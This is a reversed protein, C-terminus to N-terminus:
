KLLQQLVQENIKIPYKKKLSALWRKELVGQYDNIVLGRAEDFSRQQNPPYIKLYKMFTATGDQNKTIMSYANEAPAPANTEIIQSLEYRGSDSQVKGDSVEAITKWEKGKRLDELAAIATSEDTANIMIVDASAAWTYKEKNSEYYSKLGTTDTAALSWVNREMIEFLMNGERFEKMQFRFDENYSELNKKYYDMAAISTFKKLLDPYTEHQYVAANGKYERIFKLWDSGKLSGKKFTIVPKNTIPYRGSHDVTIDKMVSDAYRYLEADKVAPQRKLGILNIIERTFKDKASNIRADQLIKQRHDYQLMANSQQAPTETHSLRKLIHVGFASSFPKGIEGDTNLKLVEAEFSHDYKGTGFEPLEGGIMYTLRDDSFALAAKSFDAGAKLLAHVSDAKKTLSAKTEKDADPPIMFLIQAVKWKGISKREEKVLFLHWTNKSRYPQSSQGPKLDYIINEYEYPVSFVTIFGLDGFTLKNTQAIGNYDKNGSALARAAAYIQQRAQASDIQRSSDPSISFHLVHLDKQSRDFAEALLENVGKEDNMYNEQVQQRFSSIDNQIQPLTDLRLEEAAKVKLKFNSYLELYERLAKEKDSVPTSNKNYARVFEDKTVVQNGYTFLTQSYLSHTCLLTACLVFVKKM